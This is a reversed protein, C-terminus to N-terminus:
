QDPVKWVVHGTLHKHIQKVSLAKCATIVKDVQRNVKLTPSAKSIGKHIAGGGCICLPHHIMKMMEAVPGRGGAGFNAFDAPALMRLPESRLHLAKPVVCDHVRANWILEFRNHEFVTDALGKRWRSPCDIRWYHAGKLRSVTRAAKYNKYMGRTPASYGELKSFNLAM